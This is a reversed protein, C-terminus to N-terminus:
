LYDLSELLKKHSEMREVHPANLRKSESRLEAVEQKTTGIDALTLGAEELSHEMEELDDLIEEKRPAEDDDECWEAPSYNCSKTYRASNLYYVAWARHSRAPM